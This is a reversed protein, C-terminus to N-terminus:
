QTDFILCKSYHCEVYCRESYRCKAYHEIDDISLKANNMAISLTARSLTTMSLTKAGSYFLKREIPYYESYPCSKKCFNGIKIDLISCLIM